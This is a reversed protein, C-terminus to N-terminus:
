LQLADADCLVVPPFHNLVLERPARHKFVHFEARVEMPPQDVSNRTDETQSGYREVLGLHQWRLMGWPERVLGTRSITPAWHEVGAVRTSNRDGALTASTRTNKGHGVAALWWRLQALLPCVFAYRDRLRM